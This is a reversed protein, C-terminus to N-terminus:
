TKQQYWLAFLIVGAILPPLSLTLAVFLRVTFPTKAFTIVWTTSISHLILLFSGALLWRFAIFTALLILLGFAAGEILGAPSAPNGMYELLGFIIWFGGCSVGLVYAFFRFWKVM